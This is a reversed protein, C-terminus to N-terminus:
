ILPSSVVIVLDMFVRPLWALRALICLFPIANLSDITGRWANAEIASSRRRHGVVGGNRALVAGSLLDQARRPKRSVNTTVWGKGPLVM